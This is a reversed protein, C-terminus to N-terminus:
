ADLEVDARAALAFLGLVDAEDSAATPQAFRGGLPRSLRPRDRESLCDHPVRHQDDHGRDRGDDCHARHDGGQTRRPAGTRASRTDCSSSGRTTAPPGAGSATAASGAQRIGDPGRGMGGGRGRGRDRFRRDVRRGPGVGGEGGELRRSSRATTPPGVPSRDRGPTLGVLDVDHGVGRVAAVGALGADRHEVEVAEARPEGEAVDVEPAERDHRDLEVVEAEHLLAEAVRGTRVQELRDRLAQARHRAGRSTTAWTLRLAEHEHAAVDGVAGRGSDSASRMAIPTACGETTRAPTASTVALM